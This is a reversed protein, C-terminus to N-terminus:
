HKIQMVQDPYQQINLFYATNHLDKIDPSVGFFIVIHFKKSMQNYVRTIM